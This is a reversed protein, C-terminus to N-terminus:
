ARGIERDGRVLVDGLRRQLLDVRLDAADDVLLVADRALEELVVAVLDLRHGLRQELVLREVGVLDAVDHAPLWRPRGLRAARLGRGLRRRATVGAGLARGRRCRSRLFSVSPFNSSESSRGRTMPTTFMVGSEKESPPRKKPGSSAIAWARRSASSPASMMSMPPSDVRGPACGTESSSSNRLIMGTRCASLSKGTETSVRRGPTMCSASLAPAEIILSTSASVAGPASSATAFLVQATHRM